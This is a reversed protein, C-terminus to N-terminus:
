EDWLGKQAGARLKEHQVCAIHAVPGTVVRMTLGHGGGKKRVEEWGTVARMYSRTTIPEQCYSCILTARSNKPMLKPFGYKV